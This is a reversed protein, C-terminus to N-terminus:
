ISKGERNRLKTEIRLSIEILAKMKPDWVDSLEKPTNSYRDLEDSGMESLTEWINIAEVRLNRTM